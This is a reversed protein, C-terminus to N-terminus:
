WIEFFEVEEVTGDEYVAYGYTATNGRRDLEDLIDRLERETAIDCIRMLPGNITARYTAMYTKKM